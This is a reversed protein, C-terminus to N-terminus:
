AGVDMLTILTAPHTPTSSVLYVMNNRPSTVFYMRLPIQQIVNVVFAIQHPNTPYTMVPSVM